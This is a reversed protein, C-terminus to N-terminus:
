SLVRFAWKFQEYINSINFIDNGQEFEPDRLGFRYIKFGLIAM